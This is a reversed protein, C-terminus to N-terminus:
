FDRRGEMLVVSGLTALNIGVHGDGVFSAFCSADGVEVGVEIRTLEIEGRELGGKM